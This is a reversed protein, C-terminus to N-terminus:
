LGELPAQPAQPHRLDRKPAHAERRAQPQGQPGAPAAARDGQAVRLGRRLGRPRRTDCRGARGRGDGEPLAGGPPPRGLRIVVPPECRCGPVVGCNSVGRGEPCRGVSVPDSDQSRCGAPRRECPLEREMRLKSNERRLRVLESREGTTLGPREGRDVRAQRVWNGLSTAGIGLDHTVHAVPRGGDLTRLGGAEQVM